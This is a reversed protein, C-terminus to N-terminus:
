CPHCFHSIYVCNQDSFRFSLFWGSSRPMSPLINFYIKLRFCPLTFVLHMHSCTSSAPEQLCSVNQNCLIPVIEQGASRSYAESPPSHEMSNIHKMYMLYMCMVKCNLYKHFICCFLNIESYVVKWCKFCTLLKFYDRRM